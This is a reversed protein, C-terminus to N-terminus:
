SARKRWLTEWKFDVSPLLVVLRQRVLAFREVEGRRDEEM